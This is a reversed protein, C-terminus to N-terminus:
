GCTLYVSRFVPNATVTGLVVTRVKCSPGPELESVSASQGGNWFWSRMDAPSLPALEDLRQLELRYRVTEPQRGNGEYLAFAAAHGDAEM